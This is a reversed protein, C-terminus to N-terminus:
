SQASARDTQALAGQASLKEALVWLRQRMRWQQWVAVGSTVVLPALSWPHVPVGLLSWVYLAVGFLAPVILFAVMNVITLKLDRRIWAPWRSTDGSVEGTQITIRYRTPESLTELRERRRQRAVVVTLLAAFGLAGIAFGMYDIAVRNGSLALISGTITMLWVATVTFIVLLPQTRLSKIRMSM